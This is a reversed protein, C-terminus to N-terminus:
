LGSGLLSDAGADILEAALRRGIAVAESVPGSDSLRVADSGDAAIVSGRLFLEPGEVIRGDPATIWGEAVEALAGVPATCGAELAALLGREADVAASVWIPPVPTKTEASRSASSAPSISRATCEYL